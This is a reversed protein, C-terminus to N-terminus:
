EECSEGLNPEAVLTQKRREEIASSFVIEAARFSTRWQRESRRWGIMERGGIRFGQTGYRCREEFRCEEWLCRQREVRVFCRRREVGVFCRRKRGVLSHWREVWVFCRRREVGVSCRWDMEGEAQSEEAGGHVGFGEAAVNHVVGVVTSVRRESSRSAKWTARSGAFITRSAKVPNKGDFAFSSPDLSSCVILRLQTNM